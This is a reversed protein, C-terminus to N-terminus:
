QSRKNLQYITRQLDKIIQNTDSSFMESVLANRNHENHTSDFNLELGNTAIKLQLANSYLITALLVEMRNVSTNINKTFDYTPRLTRLDDVTLSSKGSSLEKLLQIKDSSGSNRNDLVNERFQPELLQLLAIQVVDANSLSTTYGLSKVHEQLMSKVLTILDENVGIRKRAKLTNLDLSTALEKATIVM